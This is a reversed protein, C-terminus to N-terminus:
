KAANSWLLPVASSGTVVKEPLEYGSQFNSKDFVHVHSDFIKEPLWDRFENEYILKDNKNFVAEADM